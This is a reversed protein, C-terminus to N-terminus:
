WEINTNEMLKVFSMKNRRFNSLPSPSYDEIIINHENQLLTKYVMAKQGWFVWVVGDINQDIFNIIETTYDDWFELHASPKKKTGTLSKNLLLVGQEVWSELTLDTKIFGQVKEIEALINKQLGPVKQTGQNVGYALGNAVNVFPYPAVGVIVVKVDSPKLDLVRLVQDKNTPVVDEGHLTELIVQGKDRLEQPWEIVRSAKRKDKREIVIMEEVTKEQKELISEHIQHMELRLNDEIEIQEEKELKTEDTNEGLQVVEFVADVEADTEQLSEIGKKSTVDFESTDSLSFQQFKNIENEERSFINFLGFYQLFGKLENERSRFGQGVFSLPTEFSRQYIYIILRNDKIIIKHRRRSRIQDLIALLSKKNLLKTFQEKSGYLKYKDDFQNFNTVFRDQRTKIPTTTIVVEDHDWNEVKFALRVVGVVNSRFKKKVRIGALSFADEGIKGEVSFSSNMVKNGKWGPSNFLDHAPLLEPREKSYFNFENIQIDEFPTFFSAAIEKYNLNKRLIQVNKDSQLSTVLFMLLLVCIAAFSVVWIASSKMNVGKWIGWNFSVSVGILYILVFVLAFIDVGLIFYKSTAVRRILSMEEGHKERKEKLYDRYKIFEVKDIAKKLDEHNSTLIKTKASRARSKKTEVSAVNVSNTEELNILNIKTKNVKKFPSKVNAKKRNTQMKNPKTEFKQNSSKEKM